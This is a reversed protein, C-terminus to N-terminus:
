VGCIKKMLALPWILSRYEPGKSAELAPCTAQRRCDFKKRIRHQTATQAAKMATIPKEELRRPTALM